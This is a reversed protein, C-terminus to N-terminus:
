CVKMRKVAFVDERDVIGVWLGAPIKEKGVIVLIMWRLRHISERYIAQMKLIDEGSPQPINEPHTHWDGIYHLGKEFQGDIERQEKKRSPWFSYRGRKDGFGPTTAGEILMKEEAFRCFLQGGAERKWPRLQRSKQFVELVNDDFQVIGHSNHFILSVTSERLGPM